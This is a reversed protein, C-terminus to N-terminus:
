DLSEGIEAELLHKILANVSPRGKETSYKPNGPHAAAQREVYAAIKDRSGAPVRIIIKDMPNDAEWRKSAAIQSDYVKGSSKKSPDAKKPM